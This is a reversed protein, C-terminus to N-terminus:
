NIKKKSFKSFRIKYMLLTIIIDSLCFLIHIKYESTLLIEIESVDLGKTTEYKPIRLQEIISDDKNSLAKMLIKTTRDM